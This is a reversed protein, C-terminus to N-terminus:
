TDSIELGKSFRLSNRDTGQGQDQSVFLEPFVFRPGSSFCSLSYGTFDM